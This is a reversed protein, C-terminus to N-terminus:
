VSKCRSSSIGLPGLITQLRRRYNARRKRCSIKNIYPLVDQRGILEIIYELAYLYSVFAEGNCYASDLKKFYWVARQKDGESLNPVDIDPCLMQTLFPLSDYCKKRIHRAKKLRRVIAAPKKYPAGALLYDWTEKPITSACQTMSARQLYKKFRKLRTYTAPAYLPICYHHFANEQWLVAAFNEVGCLSCVLTGYDTPVIANQDSGCSCYEFQM